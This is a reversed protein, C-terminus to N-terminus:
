EVEVVVGYHDSAALGIDEYVTQGFVSCEKLVPFDCPYPNRLLIRDFRANLEITNNQFRPNERFNLTCEAETGTLEAYSLALDYWCPKSERDRLICEGTLFRQVDARESCNFDGALYAYDYQKEDIAAIVEVIQREREAVSDWPLHVNAVLIRKEGWLCICHIAKADGLWVGREESLWAEKEELPLRSLICLGEEEGPYNSFLCYPYEAEDAIKEAMEWGAVEQLCIIDANVKCIEAIIYDLRAPMGSESNWINYTAIKM